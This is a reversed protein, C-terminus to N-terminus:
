YVDRYVGKILDLINTYYNINHGKKNCANVFSVIQPVELNNDLLLKEDELINKKGSKVIKTYNMLYVYDTVEYCFSTDKSLLIIM